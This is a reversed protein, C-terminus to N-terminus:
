VGTGPPGATAGATAAPVAETVGTGTGPGLDPLSGDSEPPLDLAGGVDRGPVHGADSFYSPESWAPLEDRLLIQEVEM